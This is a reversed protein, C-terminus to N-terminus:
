HREVDRGVPVVAKEVVVPQREELKARSRLATRRLDVEDDLSELKLGISPNMVDRAAEAPVADLV